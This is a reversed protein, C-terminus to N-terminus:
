TPSVFCGFPHTYKQPHHLLTHIPTHPRVTSLFHSTRHPCLCSIPTTAPGPCPSPHLPSSEVAPTDTLSVPCPCPCNELRAEALLSGVLHHHQSMKKKLATNYFEDCTYSLEVIYLLWSAKLSALTTPDHATLQATTLRSPSLSLGRIVLM